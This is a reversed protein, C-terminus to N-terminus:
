DVFAFENSLMLVQALQAIPSLTKAADGSPASALFKEALALEV